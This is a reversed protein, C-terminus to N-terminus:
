ANRTRWQCDTETSVSFEMPFDKWQQLGNANSITGVKSLIDIGLQASLQVSGGSFCKQANWRQKKHM